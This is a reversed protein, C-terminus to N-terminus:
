PKVGLHNLRARRITNLPRGGVGIADDRLLYSINARSAVAPAAKAKGVRKKTTSESDKPAIAIWLCLLLFLFTVELAVVGPLLPPLTAFGEFLTAHLLILAGGPILTAFPAKFAAAWGRGMTLWAVVHGSVLVLTVFDEM